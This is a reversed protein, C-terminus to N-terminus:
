QLNYVQVKLLTYVQQLALLDEETNSTLVPMGALPGDLACAFM